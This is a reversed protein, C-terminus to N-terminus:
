ELRDETLSTRAGGAFAREGAATITFAKALEPLIAM